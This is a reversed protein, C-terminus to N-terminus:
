ELYVDFVEAHNLDLGFYPSQFNGVSNSAFVVANNENLIRLSSDKNLEIQVTLLGNPDGIKDKAQSTLDIDGSGAVVTMRVNNGSREFLLHLGDSLTQSAGAVLLLTGGDDIAFTTVIRNSPKDPLTKDFVLKGVGFLKDGANELGDSELVHYSLGEFSPDGAAAAKPAATNNSCGVALTIAISLLARWVWKMERV